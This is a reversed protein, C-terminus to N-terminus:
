SQWAMYIFTLCMQMTFYGASSRNYSAAQMIERRAPMVGCQRTVAVTVARLVACVAEELMPAYVPWYNVLREYRQIETQINQLMEILLPAIVGHGTVFNLQDSGLCISNPVVTHCPVQMPSWSCAVLRGWTIPVSQHHMHKALGTARKCALPLKYLSYLLMHMCEEAIISVLATLIHVSKAIFTM